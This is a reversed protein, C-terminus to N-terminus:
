EADHLRLPITFSGARNQLPTTPRSKLNRSKNNKKTSGRLLAGGARGGKVAGM